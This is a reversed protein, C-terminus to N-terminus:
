RKCPVKTLPRKDLLAFATEPKKDQRCHGSWPCACLRRLELLRDREAGGPLECGRRCADGLSPDGCRSLGQLHHPDQEKYHDHTDPFLQRTCRPATPASWTTSPSSPCLRMRGPWAGAARHDTGQGQPGQTLDYREMRAFITGDDSIEFPFAESTTAGQSLTIPRPSLRAPREKGPRGIHVM